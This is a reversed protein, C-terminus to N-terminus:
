GRSASGSVPRRLPTSKRGKPVTDAVATAVLYFENAQHLGALVSSECEQAGLGTALGPLLINTTAATRM